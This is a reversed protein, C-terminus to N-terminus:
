FNFNIEVLIVNKQMIRSNKELSLRTGNKSTMWKQMEKRLITRQLNEALKYHQNKELNCVEVLEETKEEGDYEM